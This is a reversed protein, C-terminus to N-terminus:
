LYNNKPTKKTGSAGRRRRTSAAADLRVRLHQVYNIPPQQNSKKEKKCRQLLRSSELFFSHTSSSFSTIIGVLRMHVRIELSVLSGGIRIGSIAAGRIVSPYGHLQRHNIRSMTLTRESTVHCVFAMIMQRESEFSSICTWM